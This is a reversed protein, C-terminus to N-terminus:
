KIGHKKSKKSKKNLYVVIAGFLTILGGMLLFFYVGTTIDEQSM